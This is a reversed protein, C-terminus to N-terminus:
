EPAKQLRALVRAIRNALTLPTALQHEWLRIVTWGARFLERSVTSDRTKNRRLKPLWYARNSGPKRGHKPCGHWFCGDVFIALRARRFVFDPRGPIPQHRRWGTIHAARLITALKLETDKNGRSRIAAMVQSRKKKTFVDAVVPHYDLGLSIDHRSHTAFVTVGSQSLQTDPYYSQDRPSKRKSCTWLSM